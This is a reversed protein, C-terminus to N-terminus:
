RKVVLLLEIKKGKVNCAPHIRNTINKIIAREANNDPDSTAKNLMDLVCFSDNVLSFLETEFLIKFSRSFGFVSSAVIRIALLKILTAITM